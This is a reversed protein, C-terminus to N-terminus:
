DEPFSEPDEQYQQYMEQLLQYKQEKSLNEYAEEDEDLGETHELLPDQAPEELQPESAEPQM